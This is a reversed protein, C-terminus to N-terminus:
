PKLKLGSSTEADMEIFLNIYEKKLANELGFIVATGRGLKKGRHFYNVSNRNKLIKGTEQNISDDIVYIESNKINSKIADVLNGINEEENYAPIIIGIKEM